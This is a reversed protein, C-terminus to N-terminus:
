RRATATAGDSDRVIIPSGGVVQLCKRASERAAKLGGIGREWSGTGLLNGGHFVTYTETTKAM